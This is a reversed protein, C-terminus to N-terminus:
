YVNKLQYKILNKTMISYGLMHVININSWLHFCVMIELLYFYKYKTLYMIEREDFMCKNLKLHM